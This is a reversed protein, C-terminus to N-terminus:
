PRPAIVAALVLAEDGARMGHPEDTAYTVIDGTRVNSDGMAGSVVGSGSVVILLVTSNSTHRAVEQGPEIRFMVIRADPSDHILATAPRAANASIASAALEPAHFVNM